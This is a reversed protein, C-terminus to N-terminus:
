EIVGAAKAADAIAAKAKQIMAPRDITRRHQLTQCCALMDRCAVLLEALIPERHECRRLGLTDWVEQCDGLSLLGSSRAAGIIAHCQEDSESTGQILKILDNKTM